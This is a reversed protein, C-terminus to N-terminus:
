QPPEIHGFERRVARRRRVKARLWRLAAPRMRQYLALFAFYAVVAAVVSNILSGVAFTRGWSLTGMAAVTVDGLDDILVPPRVFLSGVRM